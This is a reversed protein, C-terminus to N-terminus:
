AEADYLVVPQIHTKYLILRVPSTLLVSVVTSGIPLLPRKIQLSVDNKTTFGLYIFEKVRDFSHNDAMIRSDIRRVDRSTPSIYKTNQENIPLGM